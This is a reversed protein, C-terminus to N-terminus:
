ANCIKINFFEAVLNEHGSAFYAAARGSFYDMLIHFFVCFSFESVSCALYFYSVRLFDQVAFCLKHFFESYFAAGVFGQKGAQKKYYAFGENEKVNNIAHWLVALKVTNDAAKKEPPVIEFIKNKVRDLSLVDVYGSNYLSIGLYKYLKKEYEFTFQGPVIVLSREGKQANEKIREMVAYSKGTGTNGYYITLEM